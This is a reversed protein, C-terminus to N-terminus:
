LQEKKNIKFRYQAGLTIFYPAGISLESNIGINDLIYARVGILTVQGSLWVFDFLNLNSIITNNLNSVSFKYQSFGLRVGSYINIKEKNLYSFHTIIGFNNRRFGFAVDMNYDITDIRYEFDSIYVNHYQTAAAFGLSFVKGFYYESSVQITPISTYELSQNKLLIQLLVDM